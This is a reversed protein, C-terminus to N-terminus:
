AFGNIGAWPADSASTLYQFGAIPTINNYISGMNDLAYMAGNMSWLLIVVANPIHPSAFVFNPDQNAQLVVASLEGDVAVVGQAVVLENPAIDVPNAYDAVGGWPQEYYIEFHNGTTKRLGSPM